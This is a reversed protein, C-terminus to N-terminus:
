LFLSRNSGNEAGEVALLDRPEDLPVLLCEFPGALFDANVGVVVLLERERVGDLRDHV